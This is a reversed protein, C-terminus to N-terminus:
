IIQYTFTFYMAQNTTDTSIFQLQARDNTADALIAAGQAVIGSAFAVGGCNQANAFNSAVPLSIGLQTSTATLTPDIDVKGSVTVTSGIRMYQCLYATSADLNAVNTLTPTYTGSTATTTSYGVWAGNERVNLQTTTSNYLVMGDIATLADRQTTTMRSPLLSRTTSSLEIGTSATPASNGVGLSVALYGAGATSVGFTETYASKSTGTGSSYTKRATLGTTTVESVVVQHGIYTGGSNSAGPNLTAFVGSGTYVCTNAANPAWTFSPASSSGAVTFLVPVGSVDTRTGFSPMAYAYVNDASGFVTVSNTNQVQFSPAFLTGNFTLRGDDRVGLIDTGALNEVLLSTTASTSGAGRVNLTSTLASNIGIGLRNNTDDWFFNANDQTYVGSAGAFVVSGTTFATSTGSGGNAVPLIGTIESAASISGSSLIGGTFRAAGTSLGIQLTGLMIIDGTLNDIAITQSEIIKGGESVMFASGFIAAGSNTGGNAVPLIGIVGSTLSIPLVAGEDPIVIVERAM